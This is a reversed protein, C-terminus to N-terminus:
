QPPTERPRTMFAHDGLVEQILAGLEMTINNRTSTCFAAAKRDPLLPKLGDVLNYLEERTFGHIYVVQEEPVILPAERQITGPSALFGLVVEELTKGMHSASTAGLTVPPDQPLIARVGRTLRDFLADNFGHFLIFRQFLNVESM